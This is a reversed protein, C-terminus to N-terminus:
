FCVFLFMFYSFVVNNLHATFVIIWQIHHGPGIFCHVVWCCLWSTKKGTTAALLHNLCCWPWDRETWGWQLARNPLTSTVCVVLEGLLCPGASSAGSGMGLWAARSPSPVFMSLCRAGAGAGTALAPPLAPGRSFPRGQAAAACSSALLKTKCLPAASLWSSHAQTTAWHKM